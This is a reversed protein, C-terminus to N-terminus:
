EKQAHYIGEYMKIVQPRIVTNDLRQAVTQANIEAARNVLLDDTLARRLAEAVAQPDEPPVIFGSQGHLIWEDACATCSQIPFTGMSMAELLSTSIGDSISLGIYIRSRNYLRLMEDHSISSIIRVPIKTDQSFLEAAILVDPSAMYINLTYDQLLEACLRMAQLGVLARGAWNQYGKLLILRRSAPSVNSKLMLAKRLEMGGASPLVPLTIGKFGLDKALIIDRQCECSYYDCNALVAALKRNHEALRGFLYIDSGWNTVIWAPFKKPLINKADLTLYGAHQIELSHVIDPKIQRIVIALAKTKFSHTKVGKIRSVIFDALFFPIPWWISHVRNGKVRRRPIFSEFVTLNRLDPSSPAIFAPFVFIDWGQDSIQSIWRATHISDPRVVFLIRM